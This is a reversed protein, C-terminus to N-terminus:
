SASRTPGGTTTTAARPEGHDRAARRRVRRDRVHLHRGRSEWTLVTGAPRATAGRADRGSRARGDGGAPLADWDICATARSSRRPSSVTATSSSPRPASATRASSSSATASAVTRTPPRATWRSRRAARRGAADEPDRQADRVPGLQVFTMSASVRGDDGFRVRRLVFGNARDFAYREVVHGRREITLARTPRGAVVPGTRSGSTTSRPSARRRRRGPTPGSRRGAPGRHAALGPRRGRGPRRGALRLGGDVARVPVNKWSCARVGDALRHPGHGRVRPTAVAERARDLLADAPTTDAALSPLGAASSCWRAWRGPACSRHPRRRVPRVAAPDRAPRPRVGPRRVAAAGAQHVRVDTALAPKASTQAPVAVAVVLAVAAAATGAIAAFRARGRRHTRAPTSISCRRPTTAPRPRPRTARRRRRPARRRLRGPLAPAALGACSRGCRPSRTSSPARTPTRPSGRRSRPASSRRSSATSTRPSCTTTARDIASM